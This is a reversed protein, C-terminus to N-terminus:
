APLLSRIRDAADKLAPLVTKKLHSIEISRRNACANIAAVLEGRRNRLPVAIARLGFFMEEDVVSYEQKRVQDLIKRLQAGNSVSRETLQDFRIQQLVAELRPPELNALLIRGMATVHAPLRTGTSILVSSPQHSNTRIAYLADCGDLVAAAASVHFADSLEELVPLAIQWIPMSAMYSYGLDLVKPGIRFRRGNQEVYGLETLTILMRRASAPTLGVEGAVETITMPQHYKGFAKLVELGRVLSNVKESRKVAKVAKSPKPLVKSVAAAASRM